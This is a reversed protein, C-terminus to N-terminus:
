HVEGGIHIPGLLVTSLDFAEVQCLLGESEGFVWGHFAKQLARALLRQGQNQDITLHGQGAAVGASAFQGAPSADLRGFGRWGLVGAARAVAVPLPPTPLGEM